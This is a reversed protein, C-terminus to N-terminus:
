PTPSQEGVAVPEPPDLRHRQLTADVETTDEVVRGNKLVLLHDCHQLTSLRHAILLTTRGHMLCDMAEMIRAETDGDVASTPEDLILIPANKLFARALSIRQREGGSLSMGREGVITDYGEPMRKIFDHAGAADAADAIEQMTASPRAYAINEALSTAFLVPEQLVIAFQNRLDDLRYDRLDRGDLLVRGESPDYFRTALNVLTSKGAGTHGLIGLRTAPAVALDVAQLVPEDSRFAFGVGEFRIAGRSRQIAAADPKERVDPIEDLVSFVREASAISGQLTAIKRSITQLPGYVQTLYAWIMWLEGVTLMGAQVNRIGILLTAATGIAVTMGIALDFSGQSGAVRLESEVGRTASDLFREHEHNERGFAKVVRLSGMTEQVVGMAISQRLKADRWQERLRRGWVRTFGLLVPVIALAVLALQWDLIAIVTIMGVLMAGSSIFPIVGDMAVWRIAPADYQIRYTSDTTGRSDHYVLSLRQVHRFLRSRFLLTLRQGMNNSLLWQALSNMQWLLSALILLAVATVLLAGGDTQIFEPIVGQLFRPVAEDGVVSDIAIKVPVPLFLKLPTALLGLVLLLGIHPWYPRAENLLRCYVEWARYRKPTDTV